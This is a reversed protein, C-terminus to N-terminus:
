ERSWTLCIVSLTSFMAFASATSTRKEPPSRDAVRNALELM